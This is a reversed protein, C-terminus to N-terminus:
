VEGPRNRAISLCVEIIADMQELTLAVKREQKLQFLNDDMANRM